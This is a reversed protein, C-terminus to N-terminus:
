DSQQAVMQALAGAFALLAADKGPPAAIQVGAGLAGGVIEGPLAIAPLGALSFPVTYCLIRQRAITQDEGAILRSLPACPLMLFDFREFLAAMDLRLDARRQELPALQAETLSAGWHL